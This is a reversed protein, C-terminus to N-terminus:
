LFIILHVIRVDKKKPQTLFPQTKIKKSIASMDFDYVSSWYQLNRKYVDSKLANIYLIIQDPFMLGGPRLWKDRAKTIATLSEEYEHMQSHTLFNFALDFTLQIGIFHTVQLSHMRRGTFCHSSSTWKKLRCSLTM